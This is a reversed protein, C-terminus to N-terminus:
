IKCNKIHCSLIFNNNNNKTQLMFFSTYVRCVLNTIRWRNPRYFVTAEKCKTRFQVGRLNQTWQKFVGWGYSHCFAVAEKCLLIIFESFCFWENARSFFGFFRFFHFLSALDEEEEEQFMVLRRRSFFGFILWPIKFCPHM